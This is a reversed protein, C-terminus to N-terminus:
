IRYNNCIKIVYNIEETKMGYFLPLSVVTDSLREAIPYSNIGLQLEKYAEQLHMAKPYHILVEIGNESLYKVFHQRNEVKVVFLHWVHNSYPKVIPLIINPNIIEELYKKAIINREFNWYDLHKLKLNLFAAQIEDLRSNVGKYVHEYKVYAGYNGIAKVIRAVNSDNTAVAGADGLAGLNKGPYFSFAAAHGIGGVRRGKYLTGHAQAADEIVKLDYRAAIEMIPDIDASMGYLHVVIIAKTKKTIAKEILSPNITFSDEDIEVFIPKAGAYTVALATAI